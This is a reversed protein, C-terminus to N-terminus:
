RRAFLLFSTPLDPSVYRMEYGNQSHSYTKTLRLYSLWLRSGNSNCALLFRHWTAMRPSRARPFPSVQVAPWRSPKFVDTPHHAQPLIWTEVMHNEATEGHKQAFRIVWQHVLSIKCINESTILLKCGVSQDCRLFHKKNKQRISHKLGRVKAKKQTETNKHFVLCVTKVDIKHARVKVQIQQLCRSFVCCWGLMITYITPFYSIVQYLDLVTSSNDCFDWHGMTERLEEANGNAVENM